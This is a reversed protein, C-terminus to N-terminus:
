DNNVGEVNILLHGLAMDYGHQLATQYKWKETNDDNPDYAPIGPREQRIVAIVEQFWEERLLQKLLDDHKTM